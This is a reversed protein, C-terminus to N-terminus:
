DWAWPERGQAKAMAKPWQGRLYALGASLIDDEM